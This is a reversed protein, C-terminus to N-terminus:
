RCTRDGPIQRPPRERAHRRTPRCGSARRRGCAEGRGPHRCGRVPGRVVGRGRTGPAGRGGARRAVRGDRGGRPAQEESGTEGMTRAIALATLPDNSPTKIIADSRTIANRIISLAAILPSNGAIIHVARAGMARISVTRGDQMRRAVWGDLYPIGISQEAIERVTQAAFLGPLQEFSARMLPETMDAWVESCALAAQLHANSALRLHSGLEALYEVIADFSLAYLDRLDGPDALPLRDALAVPDPALFRGGSRGPQSVLDSSVTVGRVFAPALIDTL